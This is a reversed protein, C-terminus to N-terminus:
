WFREPSVSCPGTAGEFIFGYTGVAAIGVPWAKPNVWQFLVAEISGIPRGQDASSEDNKFDDTKPAPATAIRWALYLLCAFCIIRLVTGANEIRSLLVSSGLAIMTIMLAFGFQIGLIMPVTRAIGYRAGSHLTM